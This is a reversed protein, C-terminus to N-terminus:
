QLLALVNQPQANAQALVSIGAQQLIQSKALQATESAFDADMIRSRAAQSNESVNSLNSIVSDFRSQVAGLTARQSDIETLAADILSLATNAGNVTSIDVDSIRTTSASPTMNGSAASQITGAGTVSSELTLVGTTSASTTFDIDGTIVTQETSVLDAATNIDADNDSNRADVDLSIVDSANGSSGDSTAGLAIVIDDGDSDVIDLSTGNDTFTLTSSLAANADAAAKVNDFFTALSGGM